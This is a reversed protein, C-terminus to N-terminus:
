QEGNKMEKPEGDDNIGLEEKKADLRIQNRKGLVRLIRTREEEGMDAWEVIRSLTGDQNVVTPGMRDYLSVSEGTSVDLKIADEVSTPPAPLALQPTQENISTTEVPAESDASVSSSM